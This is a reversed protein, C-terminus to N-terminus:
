FEQHENATLGYETFWLGINNQFRTIVFANGDVLRLRPIRITSIILFRGKSLM